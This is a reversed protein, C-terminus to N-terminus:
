AMLVVGSTNLVSPKVTTLRGSRCRWTPSITVPRGPPATERATPIACIKLPSGPMRLRIAYQYWKAMMNSATNM